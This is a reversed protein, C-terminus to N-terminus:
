PYLAGKARAAGEKDFQRANIALFCIAQALLLLLLGGHGNFCLWNSWGVWFDWDWFGCRCFRNRNGECINRCWGRDSRWRGRWYRLGRLGLGRYLHCGWSWLLNLWGLRYLCSRRGCLGLGLRDLLLLRDCIM